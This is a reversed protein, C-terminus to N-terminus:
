PCGERVEKKVYGRVHWHIRHGSVGELKFGKTNLAFQRLQAKPDTEDYADASVIWQFGQGRSDIRYIPFQVDVTQLGFNFFGWKEPLTIVDERDIRYVCRTKEYSPTPSPYRQAVSLSACFLAVLCIASRYGM